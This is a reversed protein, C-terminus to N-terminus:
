RNRRSTTSSRATAPELNGSAREAQVSAALVALAWVEAAFALVQCIGRLNGWHQFAEFSAKLAAPDILDKIGLMIPAAKLTLALGLLSLIAAAFVPVASWPRMRDVVCGASAACILVAGLLAEGPYLFLGNGLDAQRSFTAWEVTGVERWAPTPVFARDVNAGALLGGGPQSLKAVRGDCRVRGQRGKHEPM